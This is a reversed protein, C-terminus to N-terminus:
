NKTTIRNLYTYIEETESLNMKKKLRYRNMRVSKPTINMLTAIEKTSLNMKMYACVRLDNSSLKPHKNNLTGFFTPHVSLFHRQYTDWDADMNIGNKILSELERTGNENVNELRKIKESLTNLLENKQVAHTALSTLERNKIEIEQLKIQNLQEMENKEKVLILERQKHLKKRLRYMIFILTVFILGIGAVTWAINRNRNVLAIEQQDEVANVRLEAIEKASKEAEYQEEYYAIKSALDTHFLSDKVEIFKQHFAYALQYNGIESYTIALGDYIHKQFDLQDRDKSLELAKEFYPLAANPKDKELKVFGLNFSALAINEGDNLSQFLDYSKQYFYECSDLDGRRKLFSGLNSYAGAEGRYDNLEVSINLYNRTYVEAEVLNGMDKHVGSINNYSSAIGRIDRIEKRITISKELYELAKDYEQIGYYILGIGNLADGEQKKQDHDQYITLARFHFDLAKNFNGTQRYLAAMNSLSAAARISDANARKLRLSESHYYLSSDIEGMRQSIVGMNNFADAKRVLENQPVLNLSRTWYKKTSDLLGMYYFSTGLNKNLDIQGSVFTLSNSLAVGQKFYEQAKVPNTKLYSQGVTNMLWVKNTDEPAAKLITVLSDTNEALLNCSLLFTVVIFNSRFIFKM